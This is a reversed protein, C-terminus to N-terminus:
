DIKKKNKYLNIMKTKYLKMDKLLQLKEEKTGSIYIKEAIEPFDKMNKFLM